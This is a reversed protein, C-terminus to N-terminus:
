SWDFICINSSKVYRKRENATICVRLADHQCRGCGSFLRAEKRVQKRRKFPGGAKVHFDDSHAGALRQVYAAASICIHQQHMVLQSFFFHHSVTKCHPTKGHHVVIKYQNAGGTISRLSTAFVDDHRQFFQSQGVGAEDRTTIFAARVRCFQTIPCQGAHSVALARAVPLATTAHPRRQVHGRAGVRIRQCVPASPKGEFIATAQSDQHFAVGLEEVLVAHHGHVGGFVRM